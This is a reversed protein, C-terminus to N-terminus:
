PGLLAPGPHGRLVSDNIRRSKHAQDSVLIGMNYKEREQEFNISRHFSGLAIADVTLIPRQCFKQHRDAM